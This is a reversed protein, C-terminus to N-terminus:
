QEIMMGALVPAIQQATKLVRMKMNTKRSSVDFSSANRFTKRLAILEICKSNQLTINASFGNPMLTLDCVM